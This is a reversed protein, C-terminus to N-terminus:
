ECASLWFLISLCRDLDLSDRLCISSVLLTTIKSPFNKMQSSCNQLNTLTKIRFPKKLEKIKKMFFANKVNKNKPNVNKCKHRQCEVSIKQRILQRQYHDSRIADLAFSEM